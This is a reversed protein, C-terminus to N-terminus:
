PQPALVKVYGWAEIVDDVLKYNIVITRSKIRLGCNECGGERTQSEWWEVCRRNVVKTYSCLVCNERTAEPQPVQALDLATLSEARNAKAERLDKLVAAIEKRLGEEEPTATRGWEVDFEQVEYNVTKALMPEAM